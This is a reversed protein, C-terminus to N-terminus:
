VFDLLFVTMLHKVSLVPYDQQEDNHVEVICGRSAKCYDTEENQFM